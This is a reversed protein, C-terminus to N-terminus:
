AAMRRNIFYCWLGGYTTSAALGKNTLAQICFFLRNWHRQSPKYRADWEDDWGAKGTSTPGWLDRMLTDASLPILEAQRRNAQQENDLLIRLINGQTIPTRM